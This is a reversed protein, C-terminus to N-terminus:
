NFSLRTKAFHALKSSTTWNPGFNALKAPPVNKSRERLETPTPLENKSINWTQPKKKSNENKTTEPEASPELFTGWIQSLDAPSRWIRLITNQSKQSVNVLRFRGFFILFFRSQWFDSCYMTTYMNFMVQALKCTQAICSGRLFKGRGFYDFHALKMIFHALKYPSEKTNGKYVAIDPDAFHTKWSLSTGSLRHAGNPVM